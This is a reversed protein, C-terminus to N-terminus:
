ITLETVYFQVLVIVYTLTTATISLITSRQLRFQGLDGLTELDRSLTERFLGLEPQLEPRLQWESRTLLLDRTESIIDLARQTLENPLILTVGANCMQLVIFPTQQPLDGDRASIIILILMAVFSMTGFTMQLTLAFSMTGTLRAFARSLEDHLSRLDSLIHLSPPHSKKITTKLQASLGWLGVSIYIGPLMFKFMVLCTSFGYLWSIMIVLIRIMLDLFESSSYGAAPTIIFSVVAFLMAIFIAYVLLWNFYKRLKQVSTGSGSLLVVRELLDHVASLLDRFRDRGAWICHMMCCWSLVVLLGFFGSELTARVLSKGHSAATVGVHFSFLAFCGGLTTYLLSAFGSYAVDMWSSSSSSSALAGARLLWLMARASVPQAVRGGGAGTPRDGSDAIARGETWSTQKGGGTSSGTKMEMDATPSAERIRALAAILAQRFFFVICPLFVPTESSPGPPGPPLM